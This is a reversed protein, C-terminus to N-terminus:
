DAVIQRIQDVIVKYNHTENLGDALEKVAQDISYGVVNILHCLKGINSVCLETYYRRAYSRKVPQILSTMSAKKEWYRLTHTKIGFQKCVDGISYYRQKHNMQTKMLNIM